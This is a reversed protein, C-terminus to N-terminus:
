RLSLLVAEAQQQLQQAFDVLEVALLAMAAVLLLERAVAVVQL